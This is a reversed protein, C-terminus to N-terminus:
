WQVLNLFIYHNTLPWCILIVQLFIKGDSLEIIRKDNSWRTQKTIFIRLFRVMRGNERLLSWLFSFVATEKVWKCFIIQLWVCNSSIPCSCVTIPPCNNAPCTTPGQGIFLFFLIHSRKLKLKGINFYVVIDNIKNILSM